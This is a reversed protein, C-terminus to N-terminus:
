YNKVSDILDDMDSFLNDIDDSDKKNNSLHIVLENILEDMKDIFTQLINIKNEIEKEVLENEDVDLQVMKRTVMLQNTFLQNSRQIASLFKEYAMHSPDFIKKVFDSARSQKLNYEQEIKLLEGDFKSTTELDPSNEHYVSKGCKQCFQQNPILKEGCYICFHNHNDDLTM